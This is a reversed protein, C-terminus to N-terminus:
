KVKIEEPMLAWVTPMSRHQNQSYRLMTKIGDLRFGLAGFTQIWKNEIEAFPRNLSVEGDSDGGLMSLLGNGESPEPRHVTKYKGGGAKKTVISICDDVGGIEDILGVQKAQEGSWVRGGALAKVKDAPLKRSESAYAIFKGYVDDIFRQMNGIEEDSWARDIADSSASADLSISEVHVGVRRLLSGFSLKLSFVGISGTVTGQEAYIPQGICTVWYGGSAAMNGMSFVVPKKKALEALAQRIAESATASGGPSNVRVVVGKVKDDQTLEEIAKVMPGAVISGPESKKGDVITGQLHLVVVSEDKLKNSVEKPGAMAKGMLEFISVERKPKTKPKTWEIDSGIMGQITKKMSGYPALKSVLGAALAESPLLMRKKQLDRVAATTLGRGKAIRSVQAANISELMKLYHGRLHESMMPNLYPEVAGKFDGARVVSAKVGVLDMAEKYFMTEMSASPMDVGGFDAMLVEDCQSSIAMHVNSANELWAITKKGKAKFAALRRTLEDLQASNMSLEPDSLDFLVYSLNEEAAMEDLYDCLKFFSKTKGIGGGLLIATPDLATPESLDEYNGNMTIWRLQKKAPVKEKATVKREPRSTKEASKEEIEEEAKTEPKAESAPEAPKTESAPKSEQAPPKSEQAPTATATTAPAAEQGAATGNAVSVLSFLGLLGFLGVRTPKM